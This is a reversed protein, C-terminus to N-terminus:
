VFYEFESLIKVFFNRIEPTIHTVDDPYKVM